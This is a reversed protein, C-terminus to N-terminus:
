VPLKTQRCSDIVFEALLPPFNHTWRARQPKNVSLTDPQSCPGLIHSAPLWPVIRLPAEGHRFTDPAKQIADGSPSPLVSPGRVRSATLLFSRSFIYLVNGIHAECSVNYM